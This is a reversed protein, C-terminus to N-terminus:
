ISRGRVRAGMCRLRAKGTKPCLRADAKTFRYPKLRRASARRKAKTTSTAKEHLRVTRAGIKCTKVGKRFESCKIKM